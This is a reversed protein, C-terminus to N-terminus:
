RRPEGTPQFTILNVMGRGAAGLLLFGERTDKTQQLTFGFGSHAAPGNEALASLDVLFEDSPYKDGKKGAAIESYILRLPVPDGDKQKHSKLIKQYAKRVAALFRDGRVNRGFLRTQERVVAEVIAAADAPITERNGERNRVTATQRRDDIRVEVFGDRLFFYNPHTTRQADIALGARASLREVDRPLSEIAKTTRDRISRFLEEIPIIAPHGKQRLEALFSQERECAAKIHLPWDRNRYDKLHALLTALKRESALQASLSEANATSQAAAVSLADPATTEV